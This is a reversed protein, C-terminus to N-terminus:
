RKEYLEQFFAILGAVLISGVDVGIVFWTIHDATISDM